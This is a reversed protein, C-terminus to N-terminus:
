EQRLRALEGGSEIPRRENPVTARLQAPDIRQVVHRRDPIRLGKRDPSGLAIRRPRPVINQVEFPSASASSRIRGTFVDQGPASSAIRRIFAMLHRSSQMRAMSSGAHQRMRLKRLLEQRELPDEWSYTEERAGIDMLVDDSELSSVKLSNREEVRLGISTELRTLKVLLSIYKSSTAKSKEFEREADHKASLTECLLRATYRVLNQLHFSLLRFDDNTFKAWKQLPTGLSSNQLFSATLDVTLYHELAYRYQNIVDRQMLYVTAALPAAELHEGGDLISTLADNFVPEINLM